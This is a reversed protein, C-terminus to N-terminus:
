KIIYMGIIFLFFDVTKQSHIQFSVSGNQVSTSLHLVTTSKLNQMLQISQNLEEVAFMFGKFFFIFSETPRLVPPFVPTFSLNLYQLQPCLCLQQLGLPYLSLSCFTSLDRQQTEFVISTSQSKIGKMKKAKHICIRDQIQKM